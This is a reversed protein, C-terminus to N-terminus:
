LFVAAEKKNKRVETFKGFLEGVYRGEIWEAAILVVALKTSM